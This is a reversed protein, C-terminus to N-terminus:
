ARIRAAALLMMSSVSYDGCNVCSYDVSDCIAPRLTAEGSGCHM